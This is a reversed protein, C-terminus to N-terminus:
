NAPPKEPDFPFLLLQDGSQPVVVILKAKPVFHVRQELALTGRDRFETKKPLTPVAVRGLPAATGRRYVTLGASQADPADKLDIGVYYPGHHAPVCINESYRKLGTDSGVVDSTKEGEVTVAGSGGVFLHKGDESPVVFLSGRHKYDFGVRGDTLRVTIVGEPNLDAKWLGFTRGDASVACRQGWRNTMDPRTQQTISYVPELAQVDILAGSEQQALLIPGSSASGMAFSIVGGSPAFPKTAERAGSMLDYRQLQGSDPLLVVMTNMGAAVHVKEGFPLEYRVRAECCDFVAVTNTESLTLVLFRGHGGVAVNRIASKLPVTTPNALGAGTIEVPAPAPPLAFEARDDVASGNPGSLGPTGGVKSLGLAGLALGVGLVCAYAGGVILMVPPPKPREAPEEWKARRKRRSARDDEEDEDEAEAAKLRKRYSKRLSAILAVSGAIMGLCFLIYLCETIALTLPPVKQNFDVNRARARLGMWIGFTLAMPLPIAALMGLLRAEAGRVVTKKGFQLKGYLLAGIGAFLLIVEIALTM